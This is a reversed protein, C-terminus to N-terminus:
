AADQGVGEAAAQTASKRGRRWAAMQGPVGALGKPALFLVLLMIAAFVWLRYALLDRFLEPIIVLVATGVIPGAFYTLGGSLMFVVFQLSNLLGFSSHAMIGTYHALLAGAIGAFGSGIAFCLVREWYEGIGISSAAGYSQAIVKWRVGVRSFELRHMIVLSVVLVGLCVYFFPVVSQTNFFRPIQILGGRGQTIDKAWHNFGLLALGFFLTIMSFYVGRLRAFLLGSIMAFVLTFLFGCLIGLWPSFGYSKALIASVYGGVGMFGAHGMSVQGSLSILRLSATMLIYIFCMTVIDLYYVQTTGLPLLAVLILVIVYWVKKNWRSTARRMPASSKLFTM